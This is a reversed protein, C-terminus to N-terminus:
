VCACMESCTLTTSQRQIEMSPSSMGAVTEIGTNIKSSKELREEASTVRKAKDKGETNQTVSETEM